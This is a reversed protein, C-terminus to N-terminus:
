LKIQSVSSNLYSSHWCICTDITLIKHMYSLFELLEDFELRKRGTKQTTNKQNHKKACTKFYELILGLQNFKESLIKYFLPFNSLMTKAKRLDKIKAYM